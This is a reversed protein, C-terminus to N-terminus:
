RAAARLRADQRRALALLDDLTLRNAFGNADVESTANFHRWAIGYSVVRVAGGQTSTWAVAGDGLQSVHVRKAAGFEADGVYLAFDRKAGGSDKFLDVRSSVVIPGRTRPSGSRHFRAIWGGERGYRQLDSRRPTQDARLQPGVYFPAFPGSFDARRLVLKSLKSKPITPGSSGCGAVALVLAAVAALGFASPRTRSRWQV